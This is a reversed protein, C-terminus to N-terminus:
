FGNFFIEGCIKNLKFAPIYEYAVESNPWLKYFLCIAINLKVKNGLRTSKTSPFELYTGSHKLNIRLICQLANAITNNDM